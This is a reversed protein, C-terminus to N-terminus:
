RSEKRGRKDLGLTKEDRRNQEKRDAEKQRVDPPKAADLRRRLKRTRPWRYIRSTWPHWSVSVLLQAAQDAVYGSAREELGRDDPATGSARAIDSALRRRRAESHLEILSRPLRALMASTEFKGLATELEQPDKQRRRSVSPATSPKRAFGIDEVDRLADRAQARAERREKTQTGYTTVVSGIVGSGLGTLILLWDPASSMVPNEGNRPASALV